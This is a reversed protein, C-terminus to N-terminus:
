ASSSFAAAAAAAAAPEPRGAAGRHPEPPPRPQAQPPHSSRRRTRLRRGTAAVLLLLRVRSAPSAADHAQKNAETIGARFVRVVPVVDPEHGDIFNRPTMTECWPAAAKLALCGFAREIM